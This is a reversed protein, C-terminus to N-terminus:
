GVPAEALQRARSDRAEQSWEGVEVVRGTEVHWVLSAEVKRCFHGVVLSSGDEGSTRYEKLGTQKKCERFECTDKIGNPYTPSRLESPLIFGKRRANEVGRGANAGGSASIEVANPRATYTVVEQVGAIIKRGTPSGDVEEDVLQPVQERNEAITVYPDHDCYRYWYSPVNDAGQCVKCIPRLMTIERKGVTLRTAQRWEPIIAPANGGRSVGSM